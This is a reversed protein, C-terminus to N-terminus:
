SGLSNPSPLMTYFLGLENGPGTDYFHSFMPLKTKGHKANNAKQTTNLKQM